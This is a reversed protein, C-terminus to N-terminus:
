RDNDEDDVSYTEHRCPPWFDLIQEQIFALLSRGHRVRAPYSQDASSELSRPSPCSSM